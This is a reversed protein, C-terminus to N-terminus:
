KVYEIVEENTRRVKPRMAQADDASRYGVAFLVVSALNKEKLGLIEDVQAPNFGGMSSADVNLLAATEVMIGLAIHAQASAWADLQEDTRAAVSGDLMQKMAALSEVEVGQAKATREVLERMINARVDTRRTVVVLHSADTVQPQGWAAGKIQERLAPNEIVLFKWAEIGFSSPSLRGAELITEFDEKSVQKDKDYAKVAYRWNLAKLIQDKM